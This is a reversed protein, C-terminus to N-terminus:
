CVRGVLARRYEFEGPNGNLYGCLQDKFARAFINKGPMPVMEGGHPALPPQTLIPMWGPSEVAVVSDTSSAGDWPLAAAVSAAVGVFTWISTM